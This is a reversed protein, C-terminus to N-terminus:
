MWNCKWIKRRPTWKHTFHENIHVVAIFAIENCKCSYYEYGFKFDNSFQWTWTCFSLKATVRYRAWTARTVNWFQKISNWSSMTDLLVKVNHRCPKIQKYSLTWALVLRLLSFGRDSWCSTRVHLHSICLQDFLSRFPHGIKDVAKGWWPTVLQLKQFSTAQLKFSFLKIQRAKKM